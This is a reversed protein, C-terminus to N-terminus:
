AKWRKGYAWKKGTVLKERLNRNESTYALAHCMSPCPQLMFAILTLSAPLALLPPFGRSCLSDARSLHLPCRVTGLPTAYDSATSAPVAWGYGNSEGPGEWVKLSSLVMRNMFTNITMLILIIFAAGEISCM